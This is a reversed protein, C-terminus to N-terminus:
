IYKTPPALPSQAIHIPVGDKLSPVQMAMSQSEYTPRNISISNKSVTSLSVAKLIRLLCTSVGHSRM